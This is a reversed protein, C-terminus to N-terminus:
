SPSLVVVDEQKMLINLGKNELIGILKETSEWVVVRGTTSIIRAIELMWDGDEKGSIVLGRFCGDRFPMKEGVILRSGRDLGSFGHSLFMEHRIGVFEFNTTIQTLDKIRSSMDGILGVNGYGETLGLLAAMELAGPLKSVVGQPERRSGSRPPPRLDGCGDVVPFKDRCNSCGLFGELVRRDQTKEAFLILGFEPGCRPCTMQDVLLLHM